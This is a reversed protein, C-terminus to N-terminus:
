ARLVLARGEAERDAVGGSPRKSKARPIRSSALDAGHTYSDSFRGVEDEFRDDDDDDDDLDEYDDEDESLMDYELAKGTFYDVARPIIQCAM